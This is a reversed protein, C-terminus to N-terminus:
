RPNEHVGFKKNKYDIVVTKNLFLYNGATADTHKDIGLGSHNAYVKVNSCRLGALEFTDNMMKGTVAHSTGWSSITITDLDPSTSFTSINKAQTILPFISSGNDFMIRLSKGRLTMPLIVRGDPDFEVNILDHNYENPVHDCIAFRANPYDILLVTNKFFDSGITGIHITDGADPKEIREGYKPYVFGTSNRATYGGFHLRIHDIYKRSNWFELPSKLRKLKEKVAANVEALSGVTNEYVGTMDAGLDFQFTFVYPLGEITCPIDMATKEVYKGGLSDSVWEFPAWEIKSTDHSNTTIEWEGYGSKDTLVSIGCVM